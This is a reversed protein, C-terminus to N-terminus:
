CLFTVRKLIHEEGTHVCLVTTAWQAGSSNQPFPLGTMRGKVSVATVFVTSFLIQPGLPEVRHLTVLRLTKLCLLTAWECYAQTATKPPSEQGKPCDSYLFPKAWELSPSLCHLYPVSLGPYTLKWQFNSRAYYRGSTRVTLPSYPQSQRHETAIIVYKLDCIFFYLHSQECNLLGHVWLASGAESSPKRPAGPCPLRCQTLLHLLVVMQTGESAM